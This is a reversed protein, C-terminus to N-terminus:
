FERLVVLLFEETLKLEEAINKISVLGQKGINENLFKIVKERNKQTDQKEIYSSIIGCNDWQENTMRIETEKLVNLSISATLVSQWSVHRIGLDKCEM